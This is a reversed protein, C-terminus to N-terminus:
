PRKKRLLGKAHLVAISAGVLGVVGATIGLAWAFGPIQDEAHSPATNMSADQENASTTDSRAATNSESTNTASGTDNSTNASEKNTGARNDNNAPAAEANPIGLLLSGLTSEPDVRESEGQVAGGRNGGNDGADVAPPNNVTPPEEDPENPDPLWEGEYVILAPKFATTTLVGDELVVATARLFFNRYDITDSSYSVTCYKMVTWQDDAYVPTISDFDGFAYEQWDEDWEFTGWLEWTNPDDEYAREVYLAQLAPHGTAEDRYDPNVPLAPLYLLASMGQGPIINLIQGFPDEVVDLSDEGEGGISGGGVSGGGGISGGGGMMGGSGGEFSSSEAASLAVPAADLAWAPAIGSLTLAVILGFVAATRGAPSPRKRTLHRM